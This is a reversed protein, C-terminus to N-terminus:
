GGRRMASTASLLSAILPWREEALARDRCAPAQQFADPEPDRPPMACPSLAIPAVLQELQAPSFKANQAAQPTGEPSAEDAGWVPAGILVALTVVAFSAVRRSGSPAAGRTARDLVEGRLPGGDSPM